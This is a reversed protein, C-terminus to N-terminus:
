SSAVRVLGVADLAETVTGIRHVIMGSDPLSSGAPVLAHDFGLREAEALRQELRAVQRVEGALGVEGMVVMGGPLPVGLAASVLALVVALDAAPEQVRVGGVVSTFVDFADLPRGTRKGLVALLLAVRNSDIGHSSRRPMPTITPTVLAQVEVLLTRAGEATPLVVSGPVGVLRDELFLGGADPVGRLGNGTMELVGLEGTPGFRHKSARLLRLAHNRDGEISLVTDVLHELVRPGALAGEKTVHGVLVVAVDHHKAMQVLRAACARVQGVSGPAASLDADHITQISDVVVLTADCAEVAAQIAAVDSAASVHLEDPIAGLRRAHHRLQHPSEEASV